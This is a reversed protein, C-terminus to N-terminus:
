PCVDKAMTNCEPAIEEVRLEIRRNLEPSDDWAPGIHGTRHSERFTMEFNKIDTLLVGMADEM